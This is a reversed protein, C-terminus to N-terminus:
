RSSYNRALGAASSQPYAQILRQFAEQSAQTNGMRDEVVGLKYLADPVKAHQPFTDIVRKFAERAAAFSQQALDIEGLWYHANATNRSDPYSRVFAEFAARSEDFKRERVLQFASRYADQDSEAGTAAASANVSQAPATAPPTTDAVPLQDGEVPAGGSMPDAEVAAQILASIRRDIDRYRDRQEREMSEIKHQQTEVSGRLQRVEEQLQQLLMLLESQGSQSYSRNQVAGSQVETVPIQTVTAAAVTVPTFALYLLPAAKTIKEIM